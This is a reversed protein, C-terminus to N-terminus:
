RLYEYRFSETNQREGQIPHDLAELHAFAVVHLTPCFCRSVTDMRLDLVLQSKIRYSKPLDPLQQRSVIAGELRRLELRLSQTIQEIKALCTELGISLEMWSFLRHM